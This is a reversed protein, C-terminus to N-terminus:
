KRMAEEILTNVDKDEVKIKKIENIQEIGKVYGDETKEGQIENPKIVAVVVAM